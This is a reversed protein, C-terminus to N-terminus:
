VISIYIYLHKVKQVRPVLTPDSMYPLKHMKIRPNLHLSTQSRAAFGERQNASKSDDLPIIEIAPSSGNIKGM